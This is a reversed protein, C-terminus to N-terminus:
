RTAGAVADPPVDVEIEQGAARTCLGVVWGSIARFAPADPSAPDALFAKAGVARLEDLTKSADHSAPQGVFPTDMFYATFMGGWYFSSAIPGQIGAAHLERALARHPRSDVTVNDFATGGPEQVVYPAFPGNAHAAFSGLATALAATRGWAGLRGSTASAAVRSGRDVLTLVLVIALPKLFPATYRYDYYVFAFGSAFVVFTGAGWTALRFLAADRLMWAIWPGLAVLAVSLALWDFRAIADRIRKTNAWTYRAQWRFASTSELPSWYGYARTEPIEWVTVRGPVPKWLADRSVDHPGIIAHNISGVFGITPKGFKLSLALVWPLAVIALGALSWGWARFLARRGARGAHFAILTMPVFVVGFPLGYAKGLYALGALGGAVLPVRRRSVVDPRALVAACTMLCTALIVDPFLTTGWRVTADGVLLMAAVGLWGRLVQWRAILCWTAVVLGAGWLALVATGAHLPDAGVAVPLAVCWPFIPSWYGAVADLWRGHGWYFADRLYAIADPNIIDRAAWAGWGAMAVYAALGAVLSAWPRRPGPPREGTM